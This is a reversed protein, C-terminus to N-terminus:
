NIEFRNLAKEASEPFTPTTDIPVPVPTARSPAPHRAGRAPHPQRM